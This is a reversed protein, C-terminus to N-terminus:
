MGSPSLMGKDLSVVRDSFEAAKGDHTVMVITKGHERALLRLLALVDQASARDLSGTPEDCILLDADAVIARAMAVRQQQGGSLEAPRNNSRDSLGVLQLAIAVRREREARGLRTLLLPLEVNRKASLGSILNYSQFVFGVCNSRWVALRGESLDTTILGGVCVDGTTPRDLGGVINLLTTKGSGSPGMLAIFESKYVDLNVKHLVEVPGSKTEYRKVVDRLTIFPTPPAESQAKM